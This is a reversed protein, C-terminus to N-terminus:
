IRTDIGLLHLLVLNMDGFSEVKFGLKSYKTNIRADLSLPKYHPKSSNLLEIEYRNFNEDQKGLLDQYIIRVLFASLKDHYGYIFEEFRRLELIASLIYVKRYMNHGYRKSYSLSLEEPTFYKEVDALCRWTNSIFCCRMGIGQILKDMGCYVIVPMIRIDIHISMYLFDVFHMLEVDNFPLTIRNCGSELFEKFFPYNAILIKNCPIENESNSVFWMDPFNRSITPYARVSQPNM